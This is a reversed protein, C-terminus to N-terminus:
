SSQKKRNLFAEARSDIIIALAIIAGKARYQWFSSVGLLNLVNGIVVIIMCGFLTGLINAKGGSMPTGGIVVAAIADMEMGDAANPLATGIRGTLIIASIAVFIGAIVYALIKVKDINIGSVRAANENGGTAIVHRGYKTKNIVIFIIIILIIMILVSVPLFGFIFGQGLFKVNDSLNSVSAGDVLLYAIGKYVQAMALTLIFPPLKFKYTISSNIFGSLMGVVIAIFVAIVFPLKVSALGYIIGVMNMAQGASLDVGGAAIIVTTGLALITTAVLQRSISSINVSELMSGQTLPIAILFIILFVLVAKNELIITSIRDNNIKKLKM